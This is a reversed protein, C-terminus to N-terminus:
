RTGSAEDGFAAALWGQSTLSGEHSHYVATLRQSVKCRFKPCTVKAVVNDTYHHVTDAEIDALLERPLHLPIGAQPDAHRAGTIVVM